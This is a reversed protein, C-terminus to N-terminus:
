VAELEDLARIGELELALRGRGVDLDRVHPAEGAAVLDFRM